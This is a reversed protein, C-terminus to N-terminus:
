VCIRLVKKYLSYLRCFPKGGLILMLEYANSNRNQPIIGKKRMAIIEKRIQKIFGNHQSDGSMLLRELIKMYCFKKYNYALFLMAPYPTLADLLMNAADLLSLWKENFSSKTASETRNTYNYFTGKILLINKNKSNLLVQLMFLTDEGYHLHEDFLVGEICIKRIMAGWVFVLLKLDKFSSFNIVPSKHSEYYSYFNQIIGNEKYPVRVLDADNVEMGNVMVEIYNSDITDDSDVFTIYEGKSHKLGENRASAVGGNKKHFVIFRSDNKEFEDCIDASGDTSGDDVLLVEFNEYTQKHISDLCGKLFDKVNYVPVIVSVLKNVIPM